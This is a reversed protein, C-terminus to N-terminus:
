LHVRSGLLSLLATLEAPSFEHELLFERTDLERVFSVAAGGRLELLPALEVEPVYRERAHPPGHTRYRENIGRAARAYGAAIDQDSDGALDQLMASVMGSRDRGAACHIVVSGQEGAAALARFVGVLKEAFLGVNVAGDWDVCGGSNQM